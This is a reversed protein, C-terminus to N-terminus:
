KRLLTVLLNVVTVGISAVSFWITVGSSVRSAATQAQNPEVYIVDGQQLYFFPSEIVNSNKLNVIMISKTGDANERMIRVKDRVGYITLDGAQALAEYLNVKSNEAIFTGPRRVEGIVSYRFNKIQINVSPTEKLYPVLASRVKDEAQRLSLGGLRVKGLTPLDIEGRNDVLYTRLQESQSSYQQNPSWFIGNFPAALEPNSAQIQVTLLDKPAIKSEHLTSGVVKMERDIDQM